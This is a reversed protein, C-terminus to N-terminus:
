SCRLSIKFAQYYYAALQCSFHLNNLISIDGRFNAGFHHARFVHLKDCQFLFHFEDRIGNKCLHCLRQERHVHSWAGTIISLYNSPVRLRTLAVHHNDSKVCIIYDPVSEFAGSIDM